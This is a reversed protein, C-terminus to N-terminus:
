DMTLPRQRNVRHLGNSTPDSVSDMHHPHPPPPPPRRRRRPSSTALDPTLPSISDSEPFADPIFPSSMMTM